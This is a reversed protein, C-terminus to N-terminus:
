MQELTQEIIQAVRELDANQIGGAPVLFRIRTPNQGAIFAIVGNEFLKKVFALARQKDGKFATFAIMLGAGFPGEIKEPHRKALGALKEVFFKRIRMNKGRAGLYENNLLSKLLTTAVRISSTSSTFTQSILGPKPKIETRYLTACTHLLKGCTVVDVYNQLGFHQFAFLHDTRGFTQVEDIFVAVQHAKLQEILNLFFERKGPYNGAEGQIMEFCMCAYENPYRNLYTNLSHLAKNTSGVPDAWDYFPIYDVHLNSPLGQRFAARDTIQALSLTRGMFCHEFALIRQAPARNQFLIKLANENAMAGSTTLLCHDLGSHHTLLEILELSDRNQQLNGQIAIDQVAADLAANAIEQLSHGFHTGIGSIMDYKVSGDSLEVLAGNGMGSGLYPYFLDLGRYQNMKEIAITYEEKLEQQPPRTATIKKSHKELTKLIQKKAAQFAPDKSLADAILKSM